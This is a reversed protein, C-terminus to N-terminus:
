FEDRMWSAFSEEGGASKWIESPLNGGDDPGGAARREDDTLGAGGENEGRALWEIIHRNLRQAAKHLSSHGQKQRDVFSVGHRKLLNCLRETEHKADCKTMGAWHAATCGWENHSTASAGRQILLEVAASHGGFVALHLPTTGDGSPEDIEAGRDLLFDICELRGNRAAYHLSTKGDRRRVRRATGVDRTGYKDRLDILLKLCALHGGGAAWHDATSMHRDRTYLLDEVTGRKEALEIMAQLQALDGDAAAQLFPPLSDRYAVNKDGTRDIGVNNSQQQEEAQKIISLMRGEWSLVEEETPTWTRVEFDPVCEGHRRKEAKEREYERRRRKVEAQGPQWPRHMADLHAALGRGNAYRKQSHPCLPCDTWGAESGRGTKFVKSAGAMRGMADAKRKKDAM